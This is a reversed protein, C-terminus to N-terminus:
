GSGHTCTVLTQLLVAIAEVEVVKSIFEADGAVHRTSIDDGLGVVFALM